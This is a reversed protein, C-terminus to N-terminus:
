RRAIKYEKEVKDLQEFDIKNVCSEDFVVVCEEVPIDNIHTIVRMAENIGINNEAMYRELNNSFEVVYKSDASKTVAVKQATFKLAQATSENIKELKDFNCTNETFFDMNPMASQEALVKVTDKM